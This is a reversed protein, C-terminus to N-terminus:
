ANTMLRRRVWGGGLIAGIGILGTFAAKPLPVATTAQVTGFLGDQEDNVGSSFFLTNPDGGNGGGGFTIAWLGKADTMDSLSLNTGTGDQLTGKFAGTTPDFANIRSNGFNGVLLDNGFTGFSAPAITLGWPSDLQGGSILRQLFNGNTDFVDVFGNGVGAVDDHQEANQLAYSVYLKGGLNQIGFPAFGPKGPAPAALTPDTFTGALTAPAFNRDFVDIKGSRFNTAYLFNGTANNGVALGKYVANSASNDVELVANTGSNWASITGDETAFIFAAKKSGVQFDTTANFVTGTPAATTGAPSGGPPPITVELSQKVGSGNYLTSFGSNNDAVWLPSGPGFAIGWPNKLNPDITPAPVFGDSVLPTESFGALAARSVFSIGASCSLAATLLLRSM